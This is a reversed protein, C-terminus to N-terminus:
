QPMVNNTDYDIKRGCYPCNIFSSHEILEIKYLAGCASGYYQHEIFYICENNEKM